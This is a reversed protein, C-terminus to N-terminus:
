NLITTSEKYTEMISIEEFIQQAITIINSALKSSNSLFSLGFKRGKKMMWEDAISTSFVKFELRALHLRSEQLTKNPNNM